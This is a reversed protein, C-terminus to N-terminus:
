IKLPIIIMHNSVLIVHKSTILAVCPKRWDRSVGADHTVRLLVSFFLYTYTHKYYIWSFIHFYIHMYSNHLTIYIKKLWYLADYKSYMICTIGAYCPAYRPPPGMAAVGVGGFSYLPPGFYWNAGGFSWPDM